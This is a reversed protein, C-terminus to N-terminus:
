RSLLTGFGTRSCQTHLTSDPAIFSLSKHRSWAGRALKRFDIGRYKVLGLRVHNIVRMFYHLCKCTEHATIGRHFIDVPKVAMCYCPSKSNQSANRPVTLEMVCRSVFKSVKSSFVSSFKSVAFKRRQRTKKTFQYVIYSFYICKRPNKSM